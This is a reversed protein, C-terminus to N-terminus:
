SGAVCGGASRRRPRPVRGPRVRFASQRAPLPVPAGARRTLDPTAPVCRRGAPDTGHLGPGRSPPRPTRQAPPTTIRKMRRRGRPLPSGNASATSPPPATRPTARGIPERRRPLPPTHPAHNATLECKRVDRAQGPVWLRSAHATGHRGPGRSPPRPTRLAPPTAIREMRRRGRPPPSGNASATSPPPATGRTPCRTPERRRPLPPTHPAHNATLECWRVDRAQGPVWPRSAGFHRATRPGPEPAPAYAAIDPLRFSEVRVVTRGAGSAPGLPPKSRQAM